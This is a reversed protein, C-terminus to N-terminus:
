IAESESYLLLLSLSLLMEDEGGNLRGNQEYSCIHEKETYHIIHGDGPCQIYKLASILIRPVINAM